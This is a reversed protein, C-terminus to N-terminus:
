KWPNVVTKASAGGEKLAQSVAESRTIGGKAFIASARAMTNQAKTGISKDSFKVEGTMPNYIGGFAATVQRTILSEDASKIGGQGDEGMAKLDKANKRNLSGESAGQDFPKGNKYVKTVGDVTYSNWQDNKTLIARFDKAQALVHTTWNPDYAEPMMAQLKPHVHARVYNYMSAPDDSELVAAAAAGIQNNNDEAQKRQNENMKTVSDAYKAAEDPSLVLLESAASHDGNEIRQRLPGAAAQIDSERKAAGLVMMNKQLNAAGNATDMLGGVDIGFQNAPM